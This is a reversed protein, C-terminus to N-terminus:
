HVWIREGDEDVYHIFEGLLLWGKDFALDEAEKWGGCEQLISDEGDTTFLFKM